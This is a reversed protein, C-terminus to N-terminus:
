ALRCDTSVEISGPPRARCENLDCERYDRRKAREFQAVVGGIRAKRYDRANGAEDSSNHSHKRCFSWGGRNGSGSYRFYDESGGDAAAADGGSGAGRGSGPDYASGAAFRRSGSQGCPGPGHLSRFDYGKNITVDKGKRLLFFPAAPWFLVAAGATMVGTSVASSGGQKKQMTYRLPIYDGDAARVRDISFDLKGTRGMRRKEQATVITGQVPSGQPIVISDGVKVNETTTLQVPQGEEATASTIAQELRCSLKTGNPVMLQAFCSHAVLAACGVGVFSQFKM